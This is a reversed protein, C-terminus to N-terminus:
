EMSDRSSRRAPRSPAACRRASRAGAPARCGTGSWALQLRPMGWRHQGLRTLMLRRARVFEKHIRDRWPTSIATRWATGGQVDREALDYCALYRPSGDTRYRAARVTGDVAALQPLHEEDFWRNFEDETQAPIDTQSTYHWRQRAGDAAEGLSLLGELRRHRFQPLADGNVGLMTALLGAADGFEESIRPKQVTAYIWTEEDSVATLVDVDVGPVRQGARRADSINWRVEPLEFLWTYDDPHTRL